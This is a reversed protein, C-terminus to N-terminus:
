PRRVPRRVVANRLMFSREADWREYVGAAIDENMRRTANRVLFDGIERYEDETLHLEVHFPEDSYPNDM